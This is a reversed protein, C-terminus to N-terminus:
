KNWTVNLQGVAARAASLARNILRIRDRALNSPILAVTDDGSKSGGQLFLCSERLEPCGSSVVEFGRNSKFDFAGRRIGTQSTIKFTNPEDGGFVSISLSTM